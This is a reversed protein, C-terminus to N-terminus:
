NLGHWQGHSPVFVGKNAPMLLRPRKPKKAAATMVPVFLLSVQFGVSGDARRSPQCQVVFGRKLVWGQRLEETSGKANPPLASARVRLQLEAAVEFPQRSWFVLGCGTTSLLDVISQAVTAGAKLPQIEDDNSQRKTAM